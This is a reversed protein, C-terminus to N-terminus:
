AARVNELPIGRLRMLEVTADADEFRGVEILTSLLLWYAAPPLDAADLLLDLIDLAADPAGAQKLGTAVHLLRGLNDPREIDLRQAVDYATQWDERAVAVEIAVSPDAPLTAQAHRKFLDIRLEMLRQDAAATRELHRAAHMLWREALEFASCRLALAAAELAVHGRQREALDAFAVELDELARQPQGLGEHIQALHLRTAWSGIGEDNTVGIPQRPELARLLQQEALDLRQRGQEVTALAERADASLLNHAEGRQAVADVSALDGVAALSKILM